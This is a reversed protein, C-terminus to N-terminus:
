QQQTAALGPLKSNELQMALRWNGDAKAQATQQDLTPAQHGSGGGLDGGSRGPGKAPALKSFKTVASKIAAVNVEGDDGVFRSIDIYEAAEGLDIGAAAVAARFEAAALKQGYESAAATRGAKEAEAIAKEQESMNATRLSELESHNDKARKEWKRAEAKWDTGDGDGSGTGGQGGDVSGQGSDGGGQGGSGGDGGGQGGAAGGDGAGGEGEGNGGAIAYIPSGNRRYGLVELAHHTALPHKFPHQM